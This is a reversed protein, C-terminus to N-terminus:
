HIAVLRKLKYIEFKTFFAKRLFIVELKIIKNENIAKQISSFQENTMFINKTGNDSYDEELTVFHKFLMGSAQVSLLSYASFISREDMENLLSDEKKIKEALKFLRDTKNEDYTIANASTKVFYILKSKKLQSLREIIEKKGNSDLNLFSSDDFDNTSFKGEIIKSKQTYASNAFLLYILM